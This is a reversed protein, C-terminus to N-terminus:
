RMLFALERSTTWVGGATFINIVQKAFHLAHELVFIYEKLMSYTVSAPRLSALAPGGDFLYISEKQTHFWLGMIAELIDGLSEDNLQVLTRYRLDNPGFFGCLCRLFTGYVYNGLDVGMNNNLPNAAVAGDWSLMKRFGACSGQPMFHLILGCSTDKDDLRSMWYDLVSLADELQVLRNWGRLGRAEVIPPLVQDVDNESPQQLQLAFKVFELRQRRLRDTHQFRENQDLENTSIADEFLTRSHYRLAYGAMCFCISPLSSNRVFILKLTFVCLMVVMHLETVDATKM